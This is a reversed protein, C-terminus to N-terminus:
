YNELKQHICELLMEHQQRGKLSRETVTGDDSDHSMMEQQLQFQTPITTSASSQILSLTRTAPAVHSECLSLIVTHCQGSDYEDREFTVKKANWLYLPFFTTM